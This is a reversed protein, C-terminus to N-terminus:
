DADANLHEARRVREAASGGVWAGISAGILAGSFFESLWHFGFTVGIGIGAALILAILHLGRAAPLAFVLTVAIAFTVTAHSSPWGGLISENMWGFNFGGSNDANALAAGFDHHPPSVRGTVAKLAMSITLALVTSILVARGAIGYGMQPVRLAGAFLGGVVLVPFAYGFPDAVMLPGFLRLNQILVFYAWDLGSLVLIATLVAALAISSVVLQWGRNANM